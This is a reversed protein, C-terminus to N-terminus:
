PRERRARNRMYIVGSLIAVLIFGALLFLIIYNFGSPSRGSSQPNLKQSLAPSIRSSGMKKGLAMARERYQGLERFPGDVVEGSESDLNNASLIGAIERKLMPNEADFGMYKVVEAQLSEDWRLPMSQGILGKKDLGCDCSLGIITLMDTIESASVSASAFPSYFVRGRGFLVAIRARDMDAANLGMSWLFIREETTREHPIVLIHPPAEIRKPLQSMVLNIKRSAQEIKEFALHNERPNPGEILIMVAYAKVIHALIEERVSSSVANHLVVQISDQDINMDDPIPLPLTRQDPSTLIFAPLDKLDWFRYYELAKHDRNRSVDVIEPLINSGNLVRQSEEKFVEISRAQIKEDIFFYLRYPFDDLNVFGADRINYECSFVVVFLWAISASTLIIRKMRLSKRRPNKDYGSFYQLAPM